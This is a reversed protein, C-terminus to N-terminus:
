PRRRPLPAPAQSYRPEPPPPAQALQRRLMAAVRKMTAPDTSFEGAGPVAQRHRAATMM